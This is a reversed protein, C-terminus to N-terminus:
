VCVVGCVSFVRNILSDVCLCEKERNILSMYDWWSVQQKCQLSAVGAICLAVMFDVVQVICLVPLMNRYLAWWQTLRQVHLFFVIKIFLNM